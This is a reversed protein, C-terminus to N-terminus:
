RGGVCVLVRVYPVCQCHISPVYPVYRRLSSITSPSHVIVSLSSCYIAFGPWSCQRWLLTTSPLRYNFMALVRGVQSSTSDGVEEFYTIIADFVTLPDSM